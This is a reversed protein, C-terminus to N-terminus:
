GEKGVRREESREALKKFVEKADNYTCDIGAAEMAHRLQDEPSLSWLDPPKYAGGFLATLDAM